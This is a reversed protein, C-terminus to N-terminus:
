VHCSRSQSSRGRSQRDRLGDISGYRHRKRGAGSFLSRRGAFDSADPRLHDGTISRPQTGDRELRRDLHVVAPQRSWDIPTSANIVGLDFTSIVHPAAPFPMASFGISAIYGPQLTGDNGFSDTFQTSLIVHTGSPTSVLFFGIVNYGTFQFTPGYAPTTLPNHVTIRVPILGGVEVYKPSYISVVANPLSTSTLYNFSTPAAVTQTGRSALVEFQQASQDTLNFTAFMHDSDLDTVSTATIESFSTSLLSVTTQPTFGSGLLELTTAAPTSGGAVSFSQIMFPAVQAEITYPEGAGAAAQGQLVIFYVGPQSGPLILSQDLDAPTAYEQGYSATTPLSGLNTLFLAEQAVGFSVAVQIDEGAPVTVQYGVSQGAALTGPAPLGLTLAPVTIPLGAPSVADNNARNIDPELLGSDTVVIIDYSGPSVDPVTATLSGTYSSLGALGGTHPVRGLLLSSADLAGDTSLYVSDTWSGFAPHPSDNAVSYGITINQGTTGEASVPNENNVTISGAVAALDPSNITAVLNFAAPPGATTQTTFAMVGDFSPFSTTAFSGSQGAQATIAPFVEPVSPGFGNILSVDLTGALTVSGSANIQDFQTGATTGGVKLNLTAAASQIYSGNITLTGAATGLDVEGGNTLNGDITGPGSLSGDSINISAGTAGITGSALDTAGGTQTYSTGIGGPAFTSGTGVMVTGSNAFPGNATFDAGNEITFSGTATNTTLSTM